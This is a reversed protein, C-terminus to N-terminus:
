RSGRLGKKATLQSHSQQPQPEAGSGSVQPAGLPEAERCSPLMNGQGESARPAM